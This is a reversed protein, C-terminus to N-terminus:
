RGVRSMAVIGDPGLAEFVDADILNTTGAGGPVIVM